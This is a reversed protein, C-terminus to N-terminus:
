GIKDVPQNHHSRGHMCTARSGINSMNELFIETGTFSEANIYGLCYSPCIIQCKNVSASLIIELIKKVDQRFSLLTNVRDRWSLRYTQARVKMMMQAEQLPLPGGWCLRKTQGGAESFPESDNKIIEPFVGPEKM